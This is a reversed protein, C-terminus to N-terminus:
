GCGASCPNWTPGTSVEGVAIELIRPLFYRFDDVGGVTLLVNAAYRRLTAAPLERVPVTALVARREEEEFCCECYDLSSPRRYDAFADYLTDIAAPLPTTM